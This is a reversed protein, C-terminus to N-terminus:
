RLLAAESIRAPEPARVVLYVSPAALNRTAIFNRRHAENLQQVNGGGRPAAGCDKPGRL